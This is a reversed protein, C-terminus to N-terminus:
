RPTNGVGSAGATAEPSATAETPTLRPPHLRRLGQWVRREEIPDEADVVGGAGTALGAVDVGGGAEQDEGGVVQLRAAVAAPGAAPVARVARGLLRLGAAGGVDRVRVPVGFLPLMRETHDRTPTSEVFTTAGVAGLGALLVASKVQASAVRGVIRLGRLESRVVRIPLRDDGDFRAGMERLPDLARRMPRTSLSPDGVLTAGAMGALVGLLLRATTGSNGCDIRDVDLWTQRGRVLVLDGHRVVEAGLAEVAVLTRRVDESDLLGEIKSEGDCMAALLVARHSVSKDGPVRVAM